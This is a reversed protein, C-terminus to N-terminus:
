VRCMVHIYFIIICVFLYCSNICAHIEQEERHDPRQKGGGAGPGTCDADCASALETRPIYLLCSTNPRWANDSAINVFMFM